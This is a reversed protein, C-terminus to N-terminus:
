EARSFLRNKLASYNFFEKDSRIAEIDTWQIVLTGKGYITEFEVGEASVGVVSGELERDKTTVEAASVVTALLLFVALWAALSTCRLGLRVQLGAFTSNMAFQSSNRCSSFKDGIKGHSIARFYEMRFSEALNLITLRIVTM